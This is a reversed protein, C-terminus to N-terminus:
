HLKQEIYDRIKDVAKARQEATKDGPLPLKQAEVLGGLVELAKVIRTYNPKRPICEGSLYKYVMVRTVGFIKDLEGGPRLGSNKAPTFDLM